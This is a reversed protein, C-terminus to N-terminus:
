GPLAYSPTGRGTATNLDRASVQDDATIVSDYIPIGKYTEAYRTKQSNKSTVMSRIADVDENENLQLLQHITPLGEEASRKAMTQRVLESAQIRKACEAHHWM